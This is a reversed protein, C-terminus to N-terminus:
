ESKYIDYAARSLYEAMPSINNLYTQLPVKVAIAGPKKGAISILKIANSDDSNLANLYRNASANYEQHKVSELKGLAAGLLAGGGVAWAAGLLHSIPPASKTALTQVGYSLLSPLSVVGGALAGIGAKRLVNKGTSAPTKIGAQIQTGYKRLADVQADLSLSKFVPDNVIEDCSIGREKYLEILTQVPNM